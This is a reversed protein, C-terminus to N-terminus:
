TQEVRPSLFYCRDNGDVIGRDTPVRRSDAAGSSSGEGLTLRGYAALGRESARQMMNYLADLQQKKDSPTMQKYEMPKGTEVDWTPLNATVPAAQYIGVQERMKKVAQQMTLFEQVDAQNGKQASQLLPLFQGV